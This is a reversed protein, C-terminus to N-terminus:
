RADMCNTIKWVAWRKSHMKVDICWLLHVAEPIFWISASSTVMSPLRTPCSKKSCWNRYIALGFRLVACQMSLFAISHFNTLQLSFRHSHVSIIANNISWIASYCELGNITNQVKSQWDDIVNVYIRTSFVVDSCILSLWFVQSYFLIM